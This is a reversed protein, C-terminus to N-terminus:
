HLNLLPVNAPIGTINMQLMLKLVIFIRLTSSFTKSTYPSHLTLKLAYTKETYTLFDFIQQYLNIRPQKM